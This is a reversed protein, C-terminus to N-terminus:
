PNWLHVCPQWRDPFFIMWPWPFTLSNHSFNPSIKPYPFTLCFNQSRTIFAWLLLMTNNDCDPPTLSRAPPWGPPQWIQQVWIETVAPRIKETWLEISNELGRTTCRWPWKVIQGMHPQGHALFKDFKAWIPDLNKASHMDRFSSSPNVGNLTKHVQTSRYDHLTMSIQGMHAHGHALFKDFWAASPGSKVSGMDRLSSSPNIGNSTRYIQRSGYNHLMMTMQGQGEIKM